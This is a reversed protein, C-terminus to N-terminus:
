SIRGVLTATDFVSHRPQRSILYYFLDPFGSVLNKQRAPGWACLEMILPNSCPLASNGKQAQRPTFAAIRGGAFRASFAM